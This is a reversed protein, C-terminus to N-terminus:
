GHAVVDGVLTSEADIRDRCQECFPLYSGCDPGRLMLRYCELDEDTDIQGGCEACHEISM